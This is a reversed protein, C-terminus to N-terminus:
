NLFGRDRMESVFAEYDAYNETGKEVGRDGFMSLTDAVNNGWRNEISPDAGHDLLVVAMGFAKGGVAYAVPTQGSRDQHNIDAGYELLLEINKSRDHLVATFVPTRTSDIPTLNPDAGHNLLAELYRSDEIKAALELANIGGGPNEHVRTNINPDAGLSLLANFGDLNQKALTWFLPTMGEKGITNIDAGANLASEMKSRDVRAVANILELTEPKSFYDEADMASLEEAATRGFSGTACASVATLSLLLVLMARISMM